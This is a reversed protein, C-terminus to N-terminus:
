SALTDRLNSITVTSVAVSILSAPLLVVMTILLLFQLMHNPNASFYTLAMVYGCISAVICFVSIVTLLKTNQASDKPLLTAYTAIAVVSFSACLSIAIINPWNM